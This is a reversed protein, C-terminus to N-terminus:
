SSCTTCRVRRLTITIGPSKTSIRCHCEQAPVNRRRGHRRPQLHSAARGHELFEQGRRLLANAARSSSECIAPLQPVHQNAHRGDLVDEDRVMANFVVANDFRTAAALHEGKGPLLPSATGPERQYRWIRRRHLCEMRDLQEQRLPALRSYLWDGIKAAIQLAQANGALLHADLLGALIKHLTYYPAWIGQNGGYTAFEELRIFPTEFHASLFGPHRQGDNPGIITRPPRPRLFRPGGQRRDRRLSVM